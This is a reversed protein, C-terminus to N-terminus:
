ASDGGPPEARGNLVRWVGYRRAMEEYMSDFWKGAVVPVVPRGLKALIRSREWARQIDDRGVGWSVEVVVYVDAQDEWRKGEFVIDTDILEDREARTLRDADLADDLRNALRSHDIVRLRRAIRSFYAPGKRAYDIELLRGSHEGVRDMMEGIRSVLETLRQETRAQAEALTQLRQETRTQAEVLTQLRQETRAQAEALGTMQGALQRVLAPLELLEDTLLRRRLEAQWEPHEQLVRLLDQFDEVTFAM